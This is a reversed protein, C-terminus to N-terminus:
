ASVAMTEHETTLATVVAELSEPDQTDVTDMAELELLPVTVGRRDYVYMWDVFARVEEISGELLVSQVAETLATVGKQFAEVIRANHVKRDTIVFETTIKLVKDRQSTNQAM